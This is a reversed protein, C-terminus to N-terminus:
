DKQPMFRIKWVNWIAEYVIESSMKSQGDRRETFVIPMEKIRFKKQWARYKMEIQFSYGDSIISDFDISELVERRYCKFGATPDKFPMGTITRVYWSAFYSLLLRKFPWNIVNIGQCYRSGIILDKHEIEELMRLIDDPNHSFDADMEIIFEYDHELAYKFGAIYATGLGQKGKRQMLHLRPNDPLMEEVHKGTGDPSNDDVILIHLEDSLNLVYDIIRPANEIENYTPIIVLASM